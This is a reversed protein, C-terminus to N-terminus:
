YGPNQQNERDGEPLLELERESIPAITKYYDYEITGDSGVPDDNHRKAIKESASTYRVVNKQNRWLDWARHGECFLEIRREYLIDDLTIASEYKRPETESRNERLDSLYKGALSSNNGKLAAEAAILYMESLRFVKPNNILVNDGKGPYKLNPYYADVSSDYTLLSFRIDTPDAIMLEIFDDTAIAEKYGQPDVYYGVNNWSGNDEESVMLEFISETTYEAKWSSVYKDRSILTYNGSKIVAEASSLAKPYDGMYLYVRAMLAKVADQNMYGPNPTPDVDNVVAELESIVFKYVDAAEARYFAAFIDQVPETLLPVGLANAAIKGKGLNTYLPGYLRVIDFYMLARLTRLQATYNALESSTELENSKALIENIHNIGYYIVSYQDNFSSSIKTWAYSYYGGLWNSSWTPNLFDDGLMDAIMLFDGQYYNVSTLVDYAGNLAAEVDSVTEIVVNEGIATTPSVNLFEKNCGTFAILLVLSLIISYIKM